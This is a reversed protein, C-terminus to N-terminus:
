EKVIELDIDEEILKKFKYVDNNNRVICRCGAIDWMRSFRMDQYRELKGIISEFRKIRFTVISSAHIKRSLKCLSNFVQSLTEKHSIRYNQLESLTIDSIAVSEERIKDGLRDIAGKTLENSM